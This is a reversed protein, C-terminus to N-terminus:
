RRQVIFCPKQPVQTAFLRNSRVCFNLADEFCVWRNFLVFVACLNSSIGTM